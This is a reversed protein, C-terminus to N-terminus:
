ENDGGADEADAGQGGQLHNADATGDLDHGADDPDSATPMSGPTAPTTLGSDRDQDSADPDPDAPGGSDDQDSDVVASTPGPRSPGPSSHTGVQVVPDQGPRDSRVPFGQAAFAVAAVVALTGIAAGLALGPRRLLRISTSKLAASLTQLKAM